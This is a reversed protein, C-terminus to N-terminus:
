RTGGKREHQYSIEASPAQNESTLECVLFVSPGFAPFSIGVPLIGTVKGAESKSRYKEVLAQEQDMHQNEDKMMEKNSLPRPVNAVLAGVTGGVVKGM